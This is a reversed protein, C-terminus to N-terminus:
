AVRLTSSSQHQEIRDLAENNYIAQIDPHSLFNAIRRQGKRITSKRAGLEPLTVMTGHNLHVVRKLTEGVSLMKARYGAQEMGLHISRGAVDGQPDDYRLGLKVLLDKRYLACHSRIYPQKDGARSDRKWFRLNELEKLWLQWRPKLELKYTGVAGVHDGSELQQVHWSLWDHRVPITDTHFALIYKGKARAIGIDVAEKHGKGKIGIDDKREILRIWEVSRLYELSDGDQSGNDVVIAEFELNTTWHRISRLCLKALDPTQFHPIIISVVPASQAVADEKVTSTQEAIACSMPMGVREGSNVVFHSLPYVARKWSSDVM